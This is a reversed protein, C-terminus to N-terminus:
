ITTLYIENNTSDTFDEASIEYIDTHGGAALADNIMQATIVYTEGPKIVPIKVTDDAVLCEYADTKFVVDKVFTLRLPYGTRNIVEQSEIAAPDVKAFLKLGNDKLRVTHQAM